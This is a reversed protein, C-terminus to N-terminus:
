LGVARMLQKAKNKRKHLVTESRNFRESLKAYPLKDGYRAQLIERNLPELGSIVSDLKGTVAQLETRTDAQTASLPALKALKDFLLIRKSLVGTFYESLLKDYKDAM